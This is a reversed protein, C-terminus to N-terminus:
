VRSRLARQFFCGFDYKVYDYEYYLFKSNLKPRMKDRLRLRLQEQATAEYVYQEQVKRNGEKGIRRRGGAVELELGCGM